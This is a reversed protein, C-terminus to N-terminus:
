AVVPCHTFETLKDMSETMSVFPVVVVVLLIVFFANMRLLPSDVVALADSVSLSPCSAEVFYLIGRIVNRYEDADLRVTSITIEWDFTHQIRLRLYDATAFQSFLSLNPPM